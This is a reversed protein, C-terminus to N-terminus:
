LAVLFLLSNEFTTRAAVKPRCRISTRSVRKDAPARVPAPRGTGVSLGEKAPKGLASSLIQMWAGLAPELFMGLHTSEVRRFETLGTALVSWVKWRDDKTHFVAVCRGDYPKAIYTSSIRRAACWFAPWRHKPLLWRTVANPRRGHRDVVRYSLWQWLRNRIVVRSWFERLGKRPDRRIAAMYTKLIVSTRTSVYAPACE